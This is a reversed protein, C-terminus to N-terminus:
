GVNPMDNRLGTEHWNVILSRVEEALPGQIHHLEVFYSLLAAGSAGNPATNFGMKAAKMLEQSVEKATAESWESIPGNEDELDNKSYDFASLCEYREYSAWRNYRSLVDVVHPKIVSARADRWQAAIKKFM